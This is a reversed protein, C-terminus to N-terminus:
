RRDDIFMISVPHFAPKPDDHGIQLPVMMKQLPFSGNGPCCAWIVHLHSSGNLAPDGPTARVTLPAAAAREINKRHDGGQQLQQRSDNPHRKKGRGVRFWARRFLHNRKQEHFRVELNDEEPLKTM